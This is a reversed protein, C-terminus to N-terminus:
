STKRNNRKGRCLEMDVEPIEFGRRSLNDVVLRSLFISVTEGAEKAAIQLRKKVAPTLHTAVLKSRLSTIM